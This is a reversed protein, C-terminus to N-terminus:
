GTTVLGTDFPSALLPHTPLARVALGWHGSRDARITATFRGDGNPTMPTVTLHAEEFEGDAGLPGSVAQVVLDDLALSGPDVTAM